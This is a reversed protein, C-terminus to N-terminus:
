TNRGSGSATSYSDPQLTGTGPNLHWSAFTVSTHAGLLLLLPPIADVVNTEDASGLVAGAGTGNGGDQYQAALHHRDAGPM